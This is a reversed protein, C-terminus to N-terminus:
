YLVRLWKSASLATLLHLHDETTKTIDKVMIHLVQIKEETITPRDVTVTKTLLFLRVAITEANM